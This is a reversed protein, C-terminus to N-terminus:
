CEFSWTEDPLETQNANGYPVLKLNVIRDLQETFLANKLSKQILRHTDPCQSEIFITVNLKAWSYHLLGVIFFLFM